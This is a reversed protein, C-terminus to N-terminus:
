STSFFFSSHHQDTFDFVSIIQCLNGVDFNKLEEFIVFPFWGTTSCINPVMYISYPRRVVWLFWFFSLPFHVSIVLLFLLFTPSEFVPPDFIYFRSLLNFIRSIVRSIVVTDHWEFCVMRGSWIFMVISYMHVCFFILLLQFSLIFYLVVCWSDCILDHGDHRLNM